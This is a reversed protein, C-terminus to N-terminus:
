HDDIDLRKRLAKDLLRKLLDVSASAIGQKKMSAIVEDWIYQARASDAFDHGASTLHTLRYYPGTSATSTMDAADALGADGILYAHYGIESDTYGEVTMQGPAWGGPSDEVLLIMKRILEMDRKM